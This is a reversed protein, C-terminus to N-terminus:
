TNRALHHYTAILRGQPDFLDIEPIEERVNERAFRRASQESPFSYLRREGYIEPWDRVTMRIKFYREGDLMQTYTRKSNPMLM